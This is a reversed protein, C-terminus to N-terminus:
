NGIERLQLKYGSKFLYFRSNDHYKEKWAKIIARYIRPEPYPATNMETIGWKYVSIVPSCPIIRFEGATYNKMERLATGNDTCIFLQEVGGAYLVGSLYKDWYGALQFWPLIWCCTIIVLNFVPATRLLRFQFDQKYFLLALLVPMLINWPWIVANRNLGLPGLMLLIVAHMGTLVIVSLKRSGRILLGVGAAIEILPLLYGFRAVWINHVGVHLWNRLILSQWIDHIFASNCKSLGSFFFLASMILQWSFLLKREEKIFVFACAMLIFQYEWPQWRSQDLLCSFLESLLLVLVLKRGPFFLLLLMCGLSVIFLAMHVFAPLSLLSEHVPVLPFLRDALWLKYCIAKTILWTISILRIIKHQDPINFHSKEAM